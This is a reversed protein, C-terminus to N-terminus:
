EDKIVEKVIELYNMDEGTKEAIFGLPYGRKIM